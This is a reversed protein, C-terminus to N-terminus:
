ERYSDYIELEYCGYEKDFNLICRGYKKIVFLLDGMDEIDYFWQIKKHGNYPNTEMEKYCEIMPPNKDNFRSTRTVRVKIM